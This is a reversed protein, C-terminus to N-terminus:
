AVEFSMAAVTVGNVTVDSSNYNVILTKGNEYTVTAVGDTKEHKIMKSNYVTALKSNFEDCVDVIEDKWVGYDSSFLYGLETEKLLNSNKYTLLFTPMYGYEAWRLKTLEINDSLNGPVSDSYDVSGHLVMQIFPVNESLLMYNSGESPLNFIYDTNGILYPAFGDSAFPVGAAAAKEAIEGAIRKFSSRTIRRSEEYDEYLMSGMGEGALGVSYSAFADIDKDINPMQKLLNLLYKEEKEDTLPVNDIKYVVDNYKSFGKAAIDANIYNQLLFFNTSTNSSILKLLDKKGGAATSIKNGAPYVYYGKNQWGYLTSNKVSVNSTQLESIMESIEDFSSTVISEKYLMTDKQMNVLFDIAAPYNAEGSRATLYGKETLYERYASAMESYGVNEGTIVSYDIRIDSIYTEKEYASIEVGSSPTMTYQKRFRVAPFVRNVKYVGTDTQMTLSCNEEGETINAFLVKNPHKVGFVPAMVKKVGMEKNSESKDIDCLMSDYIDLTLVNEESKSEGFNYIAGSGDPIFLYGDVSSKTAGFMPLLDVGTIKYKGDEKIANRPMFVSIGKEGLTFELSLKLNYKTFKFDFRLGDKIERLTTECKDSLNNEAGNKMGFDTYKVNVLQKLANKTLKNKIEEGYEEETVGTSWIMEGTQKDNINLRVEAPDYVLELRDNSAVVTPEDFTVVPADKNIDEAATFLEGTDVKPEIGSLLFASVAIAIVLVIIIIKKLKM